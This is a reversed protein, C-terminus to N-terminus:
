NLMQGGTIVQHMFTDSDVIYGKKTGKGIMECRLLAHSSLAKGIETQGSKLFLPFQLRSFTHLYHLYSFYGESLM